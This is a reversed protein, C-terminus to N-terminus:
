SDSENLSSILLKVNEDDVEAIWIKFNREALEPLLYQPIKKHHVYLMDGDKLKELEKLVTVMPLPMELDRVDVEHIEKKCNAKEKELEEISVKFVLKNNSPTKQVVDSKFFYTYIVEGETKVMSVYGKSNVIKILPTPEFTNIIELAFGDQLIELAAMIEKFPDDGRALSPRVDLTTVKELQIANLIENHPSNETKEEKLIPNIEVEFGIEALKNFFVEIDCKGIRAADAITVRSALVKRLIPNRLKNFHPNISAIADISKENEKILASIKTQQNIKMKEFNM